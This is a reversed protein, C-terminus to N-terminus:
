RRILKVVKHIRLFLAMQYFLYFPYKHTKYVSSIFTSMKPVLRKSGKKEVWNFGVANNGHLRYQILPLNLYYAKNLLASIVFLQYDHIYGLEQIKLYINKINQSFCFTCGQSFNGVFLECANVKKVNKKCHKIFWPINVNDKSISNGFSDILDYNTCIFEMNENAIIFSCVTEIKSPYWVDDQDCLFIYDGSTLSIAKKFNASYGLNQNNEFLKINIYSYEKIISKIIEVTSDKSCDDVIIIEDPVRTQKILSLLQCKIFKEGNYTTLAISISFKNKQSNMM